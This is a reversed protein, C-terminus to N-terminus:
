FMKRWIWIGILTIWWRQVEAEDSEQTVRKFTEKMQLLEGSYYERGYRAEHTYREDFEKKLTAETTHCDEVEIFLIVRSQKPYGRLRTNPLQTTKGLKFVNENNRVFERLQLLYVYNHNKMWDEKEEKKEIGQTKQTKQTKQKGRKRKM